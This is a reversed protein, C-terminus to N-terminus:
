FCCRRAPNSKPADLFDAGAKLFEEDALLCHTATAVSALSRHPLLVYVDHNDEEAELAGFVGVPCIGIRNLAPVAASSFFQCLAKKKVASELRYLRLEYYEKDQPCCRDSRGATASTAASALGAACSAALFDRRKM